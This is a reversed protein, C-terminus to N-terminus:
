WLAYMRVDRIAKLTGQMSQAAGLGNYANGEFIKELSDCPQGNVDLSFQM